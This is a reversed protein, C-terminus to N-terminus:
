PAPRTVNPLTPSGNYDDHMTFWTEWDPLSGADAYVGQVRIHHELIAINTAGYGLKTHLKTGAGAYADNSRPDTARSASLTFYSGSPVEIWVKSGFQVCQQLRKQAFRAANRAPNVCGHRGGLPYPVSSWPSVTAGNVRASWRVTHGYRGNTSEQHAAFADISPWVVDIFTICIRTILLVKGNPVIYANLRQNPSAGQVIGSAAHFTWDADRALSSLTATPSVGPLAFTFVTVEGPTLGLANDYGMIAVYNGSDVTTAVM